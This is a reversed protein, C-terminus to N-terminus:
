GDSLVLIEMADPASRKLENRLAHRIVWRRQPSANVAWSELLGMAAPRNDKTYDNVSNAVSRQVFRSDDDSLSSLIAFVAEPQEIFLDLKKAWPLRPRLGESALRRVHFSPDRAWESMVDVAREPQDRIFPRIAYEGTHRKTLGEIAYISEDFHGRGWNAIFTGVPWLWYGFTFMGTENPNEDGYIGTLVNLAQPYDDPLYEYILGALVEVRGLLQHSLLDSSRAARIFEEGDFHPDVSVIRDALLQALGLGFHRKLGTEPEM